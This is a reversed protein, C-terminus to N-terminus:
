RLQRYEFGRGGADCAWFGRLQPSAVVKLNHAQRGVLNEDLSAVLPPVQVRVSTRGTSKLDSLDVPLDREILYLGVALAM